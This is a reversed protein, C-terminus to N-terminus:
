SDDTSHQSNDEILVVQLNVFFINIWLIFRFVFDDVERM